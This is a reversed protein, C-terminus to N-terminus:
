QFYEIFDDSINKSRTFIRVKVRRKLLKEVVQKGIFGDAGTVAVTISESVM